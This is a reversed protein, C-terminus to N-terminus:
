AGGFFLFPLICCVVAPLPLRMEGFRPLSFIQFIFYILRFSFEGCSNLTADANLGTVQLVCAICSRCDLNPNPQPLPPRHSYLSYRESLLSPARPSLSHKKRPNAVSGTLCACLVPPM